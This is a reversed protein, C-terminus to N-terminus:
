GNRELFYDKGRRPRKGFCLSPFIFFTFAYVSDLAPMYILDTAAWQWSFVNEKEFTFVLGAQILTSSVSFFFTMLPLTSLSDAFFNRRQGYLLATTACYNVAYLGFQAHSALLDMFIGCAFTWWLCVFFTKKYFLIVLLPAMAM